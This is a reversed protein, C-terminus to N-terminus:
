STNLINSLNGILIVMDQKHSGTGNNLIEILGDDFSM